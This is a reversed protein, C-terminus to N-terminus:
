LHIVRRMFDGNSDIVYYDYGKPAVKWFADLKPLDEKPLMVEFHGVEPVWSIWYEGAKDYGFLSWFRRQVQKELSKSLPFREQHPLGRGYFSLQYRQYETLTYMWGTCMDYFYALLRGDQTLIGDVGIQTLTELLQIKEDHPLIDFDTSVYAINDILKDLPQKSGWAPVGQQKLEQFAQEAKLRAEASAPTGSGDPCNAWAPSSCLSLLLLCLSLKSVLHKM